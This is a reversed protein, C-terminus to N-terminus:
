LHMNTKLYGSHKDSKLSVQIKEVYKSFCEFLLKKKFGDLLFQAKQLEAFASLLVSQFNPTCHSHM